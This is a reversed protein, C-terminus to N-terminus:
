RHQTKRWQKAPCLSGWRKGRGRSRLRGQDRQRLDAQHVGGGVTLQDRLQGQGRQPHQGRHLLVGPQKPVHRGQRNRKDQLLLPFLKKMVSIPIM